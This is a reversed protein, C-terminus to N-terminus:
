AKTYRVIVVGSGGSAGNVSTGSAGGGGGGLNATGNVPSGTNFRGAGGGGAGGTSAANGANPETGGGGGGAFYYSSSVLQGIGTAAGIANTLSSTLGAGGNGGNTAADAGVAGAGGGGGGAFTGAVTGKGGAFGQGSTASGGTSLYSGFVSSAGGGSGGTGGTSNATGPFTVGSGGGISTFSGFVSNAGQAGSGTGGAGGGGITVTQASSVTTTGTLLGGAGGGGTGAAGGGAGGGGGGAVVLYDVSLSSLPTFTGTSGFVHYYYLDDSYIAGGTAKVAPSVGEAQIGYLSFTSGTSYAGAGSPNRLTISTIASTSRWLGVNARTRTDGQGSRSIVTKNTTTNAYNMVHIINPCPATDLEMGVQMYTNNSSRYSEPTSGNNGLVTYSYNSGTDGNFRLSLSDSGNSNTVNAVIILDTYTSPISSFTITATSGDGTTRALAVYTNTPM